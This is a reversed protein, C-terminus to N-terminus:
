YVNEREVLQLERKHLELLKQKRQSSKQWDTYVTDINDKDTVNNRKRKVSRRSM